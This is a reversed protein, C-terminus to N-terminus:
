GAAGLPIRSETMYARRRADAFSACPAPAPLIPRGNRNLRMKTSVQYTVRQM